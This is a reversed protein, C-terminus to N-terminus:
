TMLLTANIGPFKDGNHRRGRRRKAEQLAANKFLLIRSKNRVAADKILFLGSFIILEDAAASNYLLAAPQKQAAKGREIPNNRKDATIRLARSINNVLCSTLTNPQAALPIYRIAPM